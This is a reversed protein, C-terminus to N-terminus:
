LFPHTVRVGEILQGAHLDETLLVEAGGKAAAVVILADWFSLRYREQVESARLIDPSLISEVQWASYVDLVGRAEPLSISRAIKRTVNVYFEQLVQTSIVGSRSRWLDRLLSRATECKEGADLDHAYVLVNTDVFVKGSM